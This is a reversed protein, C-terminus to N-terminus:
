DSMDDYGGQIEDFREMVWGKPMAERIADKNPLPIGQLRLLEEIQEIYKNNVESSFDGIAQQHDNFSSM